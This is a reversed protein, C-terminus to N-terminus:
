EDSDSFVDGGNAWPFGDEEAAELFLSIHQVLLGPERFRSDSKPQHIEAWRAEALTSFFHAFQQQSLRRPWKKVSDVWLRGLFRKWMDKAEEATADKRSALGWMYGNRVMEAAQHFIPSIVGQAHRKHIIGMDAHLAQAVRNDSKFRGLISRKGKQESPFRLGSKPIADSLKFPRDTQPPLFVPAPNAIPPNTVLSLENVRDTLADELPDQKVQDGPGNTSPNKPRITLITSHTNLTMKALQKEIRGVLVKSGARPQFKPKSAKLHPPAMRGEYVITLEAVIM